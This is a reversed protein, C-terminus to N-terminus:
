LRKASIIVVPKELTENRWQGPATKKVTRSHLISKVVEMGSEVHGFAAYGLHDHEKDTYPKDDTADMYPMDGVCIVFESAATGPAFRAMSLTGNLHHLGTKITSEHPIPPFKVTKIGGEIFGYEPDSKMARFFVAGNLKGSDVYRLFNKSTIPAKEDELVLVITGKTTKLSVRVLASAGQSWLASIVTMILATKLAKQWDMRM